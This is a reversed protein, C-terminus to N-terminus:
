KASGTCYLSFKTGETLVGIPCQAQVCLFRAAQKDSSRTQRRQTPITTKYTAQEACSRKRLRVTTDCLYTENM